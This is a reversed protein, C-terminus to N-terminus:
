VIVWGKNEAIQIEEATLKALNTSGITVKWTTSTDGSKDALANILSMLSDHTLKDSYQLTLGNINITGEFTINQLNNCNAFTYQNVFTAKSLDIKPITILRSCSYFTSGFLEGNSTDIPPIETIKSCYEFTCTFKKGKSTDIQPIITLKSCKQFFYTFDTCQSTDIQPITTINVCDCFMYNFNTGKSTDIQPITTLSSCNQFMYNFNTGSSTDLFPIETIKSCKQFMYSFDTGKSTNIQPITTLNNCNQFMYSFDTGKSTDGYKLKPIYSARRGGYFFYSFDTFDSWLNLGDICGIIEEVDATESLEEGKNVLSERIPILTNEIGADYVEAIGSKMEEPTYTTETGTKERIANAIDNYHKNDTTIIAM